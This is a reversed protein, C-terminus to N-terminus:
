PKIVHFAAGIHNRISDFQMPPFTSYLVMQGVSNLIGLETVNIPTNLKYTAFILTNNDPLLTQTYFYSLFVTTCNDIPTGFSIHLEGTTYNISGSSIGLGTIVGNSNDTAIYETGGITYQM